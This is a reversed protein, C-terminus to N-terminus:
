VVSKRDLVNQTDYPDIQSNVTNSFPPDEGESAGEAKEKPKPQAIDAISPQL